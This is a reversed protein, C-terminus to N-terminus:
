QSVPERCRRPHNHPSSGPGRGANTPFRRSDPRPPKRSLSMGPKSDLPMGSGRRKRVGEVAVRAEQLPEPLAAGSASYVTAARNRSTFRGRGAICTGSRTVTHSVVAHQQGDSLSTAACRRRPALVRRLLMARVDRTPYYNRLAASTTSCLRIWRM